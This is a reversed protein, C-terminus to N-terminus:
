VQMKLATAAQQMQQGTQTGTEAMRKGFEKVADSSGKDQALKGLHAETASSEAVNKVFDKDIAYPDIQPGQSNQPIAGPYGPPTNQPSGMPPGTPPTQSGPPQMQASAAVAWVLAAACIVLHPRVLM